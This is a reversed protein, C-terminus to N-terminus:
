VTGPIPRITTQQACHGYNDRTQKDWATDRFSKIHRRASRSVFIEGIRTHRGAPSRCRESHRITRSAIKASPVRLESPRTIPPLGTDGPHRRTGVLLNQHHLTGRGTPVTPGRPGSGDAARTDAQRRANM